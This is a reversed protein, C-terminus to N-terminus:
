PKASLLKPLIVWHGAHWRELKVQSVPYRSSPTTRVVIGPLLFPNNKETLHIAADRAKARTLNKGAKKLVDVMTFAGAMGAYYYGDNPNGKAFKTVITRGLRIGADKKWVPVQPDKAFVISMSGEAVKQPEISMVASAAAVDNVFIKPKWGLQNVYNYAQIAFKGFAFIM